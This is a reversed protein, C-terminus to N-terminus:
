PYLLDFWVGKGHRDRCVGWHNSLVDVITMGRGHVAETGADIMHPYAPSSDRVTVKLREDLREIKLDFSGTGHVIANTIVENTLLAATERFEEPLDSTTQRLLSRAESLRHVDGKMRRMTAM